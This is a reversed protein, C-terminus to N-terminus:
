AIQAQPSSRTWLLKLLTLRSAVRGGAVATAASLAALSATVPTLELGTALGLGLTAFVGAATLGVAAGIRAADGPLLSVRPKDGLSAALILLLAIDLLSLVSTLDLLGGAPERLCDGLTTQPLGFITEVTQPPTPHTHTHTLLLGFIPPTRTHSYCTPSKSTAPDTEM